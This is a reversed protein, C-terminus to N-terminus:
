DRFNRDRIKTRFAAAARGESAISGALAAFGNLRQGSLSQDLLSRVIVSVTVKRSRALRTLADSQRKPVRVTLTTEMDYM